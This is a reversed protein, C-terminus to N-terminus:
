DVLTIAVRRRTTGGDPKTVDIVAYAVARGRRDLQRRTTAPVEVLVTKRKGAGIDFATSKGSRGAPRPRRSLSSALLSVKGRCSAGADGACNLVLRVKGRSLRVRLHSLRLSSTLVPAVPNSPPTPQNAAPPPFPTDDCANGRGDGDADAQDANAVTACNDAGDNRGDADSDAVLPNTGGAAEVTDSVGDNDDDADCADGQADGDTNAQDPNANQECNDGGDVFGDDDFDDGVFAREMEQFDVAQFGPSTIQGDPATSDGGTTRGETDYHFADGPASGPNNGDITYPTTPSAQVEFRDAASGGEVRLRSSANYPVGEVGSARVQWARSSSTGERFRVTTDNVSGSGTAALGGQGAMITLEPANAADVPSTVTLTGAPGDGVLANQTFLRDLEGDSVELASASADTASGLDIARGPTAPRV